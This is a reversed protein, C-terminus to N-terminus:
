MADSWSPPAGKRIWLWNFFKIYEKSSWIVSAVGSNLGYKSLVLSKADIGPLRNNNLLWNTCLTGGFWDSYLRTLKDKLVKGLIGKPPSKINFLIVPYYGFIM